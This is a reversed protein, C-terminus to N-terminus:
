VRHQGDPWEKKAPTNSQDDAPPTVTWGENRLLEAAADIRVQKARAAAAKVAAATNPRKPAPM